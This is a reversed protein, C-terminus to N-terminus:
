TVVHAASMSYRLVTNAMRTPMLELKHAGTFEARAASTINVSAANNFTISAGFTSNIALAANVTAKLAATASLEAAATLNIKGGIYNSNTLGITTSSSLGLTLSVGSSIKFKFYDGVSYNYWPAASAQIKIGAGKSTLEVGSQGHIDLKGVEADILMDGGTAKVDVGGKGIFSAKGTEAEMYLYGTAAKTSVNVQATSAIDLKATQYINMAMADITIDGAQSQILISQKVVTNMHNDAVTIHYFGSEVDLTVNNKIDADWNNNVRLDYNVDFFLLGNDDTRLIIEHGASPCGMLLFTNSYPTSLTIRESGQQDEIELRNSGGTQIVNLTHNASTVPSPTVPNPVSGAIMPRDPDGGLFFLAVETGKRLPFHFGEVGGAHPQMMRIWTTASGDVLDSEDFLVRCHYRGHEDIQAYESAAAGCVVAFEYGDIRPWRHRREARYQLEAPIATLSVRYGHPANEPLGMLAAVGADADLGVHEVSVIRYQKDSYADDPHEELKLQHNPRMLFLRGQGTFVKQRSAIEEARVKAYQSVMAGTIANEGFMSIDGRGTPSIAHDGTLAMSPNLYNYDKMKMLAPLASHKASFSNLIGPANVEYPRYRATPATEESKLSKSDIIILKEAEGAHDFFYYLGEKEMWRSIFALNSEKYQCVHELTPYTGVTDISYDAASLGGDQLVAEIIELITNDTYIRSHLTQSLEWLRPVITVRYYFNSQWQHVLEVAAVIGRIPYSDGSDTTITLAIPKRLAADADFGTTTRFGVDIRYVESIAERGLVSVAEADAPLPDCKLTFILQDM